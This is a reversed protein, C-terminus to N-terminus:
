FQFCPDSGPNKTYWLFIRKAADSLTQDRTMTGLFALSMFVDDLAIKKAVGLFSEGGDCTRTNGSSNVRGGDDIRNELWVSAKYLSSELEPSQLGALLIDKGVNISVAQYSTDWGGGELFAGDPSLLKIAKQAFTSAVKILSEDHALVGCAQFALSDFLLRNPALRDYKMLVDQQSLLWIIGRNLAATTMKLSKQTTIKDAETEMAIIGLCADGLYFAAASAIDGDSLLNGQAIEAPLRSRIYGDDEIAETGKKIGLYAKKARGLDEAVLAIRLGKGAGLQFRPSYLAGWERNRGLLGSEDKPIYKDALVRLETTFARYVQLDTSTLDTVNDDIIIVFENSVVQQEEGGLGLVALPNYTQKVQIDGIDYVGEALTFSKGSGQSFHHGGDISYYWAVDESLNSIKIVGNDSAGDVALQFRLFVGQNTALNQKVEYSNAVNNAAAVTSFQLKFIASLFDNEPSNMHGDALDNILDTVTVGSKELQSIGALALGVLGANDVIAASENLDTPSVSTFKGVNLSDLGFYDAVYRNYLQIDSLDNDAYSLQYAIESLPSAIMTLNKIDDYHFEEGDDMVIVSPVGDPYKISVHLESEAMSLGTASDIYTGGFCEVVGYLDEKEVWVGSYDFTGDTNTEWVEQENSFQRLLVRDDRGAMAEESYLSCESGVVKGGSFAGSTGSLQNCGTLLGIFGTVILIKIIRSEIM